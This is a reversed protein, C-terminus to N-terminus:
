RRIVSMGEGDWVWNPCDANKCRGMRHAKTSDHVTQASREKAEYRKLKRLERMNNVQTSGSYNSRHWHKGTQPSTFWSM